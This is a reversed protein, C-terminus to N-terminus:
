KELGYSLIKWGDESAILEMSLYTFSDENGAVFQVSAFLQNDDDIPAITRVSIGSAAEGTYGDADGQYDAALCKRLEQKRRKPPKQPQM